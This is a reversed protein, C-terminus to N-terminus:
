DSGLAMFAGWSSPSALTAKGSRLLSLQAERLAGVPDSTRSLIHHFEYFLSRTAEDDVDWQSAIVLPVGGALFPRAVSLAGEGRSVGGVGTSCAALVVLRTREFRRNSLEHAFLFEETGDPRNAFALRSLLPYEANAFAHGGFHVVEYHGVGKLFADKSADRGTLVTHERYFSATTAVEKEAGPLNVAHAAPNGVLLASTLPSSVRQHKNKSAQYFRASPSMVLDYDEILYRKTAPNRLTAFPLQQLQGDPILVLVGGAPAIENVPQILLDFLHTEHTSDAARNSVATRYRSVLNALADSSIERQVFRHNASTITWILVRDPLTAYYAVVTSPELFRQFDRITFAENVGYSTTLTRARSREAYEFTAVPNRREALQLKMMEQFLAWSDDFFSIKFAEEGLASQRAELRTIGKALADEAEELAGDSLYTRALGLYLRPVRAPETTDFFRIAQRFAEIKATGPGQPIQPTIVDIEAKLYNRLAEASVSNLRASAQELDRRADDFHSRRVHIVARQTLADVTATPSTRQAEEVTANQFLLAAEFLEQSSTFLSANYLFLYRRVPRRVTTIGALTKGIEEWSQQTEGLTRLVDALHHHLNVAFEPQNTREFRAAAARFASVADTIKWQKSFVLGRMWLAYGLLTEYNQARANSEVSALLRDAAELRREQYQLTAIRIQVWDRYRSAARTLDQLARQHAASATEYNEAQYQKVGEAYALHGRALIKDGRALVEVEDLAMRDTTADHIAGALLRAQAVHTKAASLDRDLVARAWATLVEQEFYELSAEPFLRATESAFGQDLAALRSRLERARADWRERVDDIRPMQAHERGIRIWRPDQETALYDAWGAAAASPLLGEIALARNFRAENTGGAKLSQSAAELARALYEVRRAPARQAKVLYAASLDSWPKARKGLTVAEELTTIARDVNGSVLYGVGAEALATPSVDASATKELQAIAIRVDPSLSSTPPEGSRRVVPSDAPAFGGSLRAEFPLSSGVSAVLQDFPDLAPKARNTWLAVAAMAGAVALSAVTAWRGVTRM